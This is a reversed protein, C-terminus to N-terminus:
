AALREYMAHYAGYVRAPDHTTTARRRGEAGLR